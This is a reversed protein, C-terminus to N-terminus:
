TSYSFNWVSLLNEYGRYFLYNPYSESNVGLNKSVFIYVEIAHSNHKQDFRYHTKLEVQYKDHIRVDLM